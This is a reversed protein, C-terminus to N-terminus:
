DLGIHLDGVVPAKEKRILLAPEGKVMSILRAGM